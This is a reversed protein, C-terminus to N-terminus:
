KKKPSAPKDPKEPKDAAEEKKAATEAEKDRKKKDIDVRDLKLVKFGVYVVLAIVTFDILASVFNGWALTVGAMQWTASSLNVKGLLLGLLPNIIDVVFSNVTKTVAAALIFGVALTVVGQERIFQMFGSAHKQAQQQAQEAAKKSIDKVIDM